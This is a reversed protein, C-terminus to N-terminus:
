ELERLSFSQGDDRVCARVFLLRDVSYRIRRVSGDVFAANFSGTHSSGFQIGGPGGQSVMTQPEEDRSDQAPQWRPDDPHIRGISDRDWGDVYGWDDYSPNQNLQSLQYRKEGLLLTNSTGDPIGNDLSVSRKQSWYSRSPGIRVFPGSADFDNYPPKYNGGLALPFTALTGGNGVYDLGAYMNVSPGPQRRAPCFYVPVYTMRIQDDQRLQHLQSLELYPLIQYAWGWEQDPALTPTGGNPIVGGTPPNNVVSGNLMYSRGRCCVGGGSPLIHHDHHHLQCALALQSMQGACKARWYAQRAYLIAPFILALLLALIGLVVLLEVLSFGWDGRNSAVLVCPRSTLSPSRPKAPQRGPTRTTLMRTFRGRRCSSRWQADGLEGLKLEAWAM